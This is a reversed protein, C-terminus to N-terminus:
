NSVIENIAKKLKDGSKEFVYKEYCKACRYINIKFRTDIEPVTITSVSCSKAGCDFCIGETELALLKQKKAETEAINQENKSQYEKRLLKREKEILRREKELREHEEALSKQREQERHLRIRDEEQLILRRKEELKDFVTNNTYDDLTSFLSYLAIDLNDQFIKERLRINDILMKPTIIIPIKCGNHYLNFTIKSYKGNKYDLLDDGNSVNVYIVDIGKQLYYECKDESDEHTHVIEIATILNGEEDYLSLDPIFGEETPKEVEIRSAGEVLNYTFERRETFPNKHLLPCYKTKSPITESTGYVIQNYEKGYDYCEFVLPFPNNNIICDNIKQYFLWKTDQHLPTENDHTTKIFHRFHHANKKGKASIM